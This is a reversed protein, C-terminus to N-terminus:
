VSICHLIGRHVTQWCDGYSCCVLHLMYNLESYTLCQFLAYLWLKGNFRFEFMFVKRYVHYVRLRRECEQKSILEGRYEMLFEGKPFSATTFIGCGVEHVFQCPCKLTLDNNFLKIMWNVKSLMSINSTLDLKTEKPLLVFTKMKRQILGDVGKCKAFVRAVSYGISAVLLAQGLLYILLLTISGFM